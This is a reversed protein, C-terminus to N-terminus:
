SDVRRQQGHIWRGGSEGLCPEWVRLGPGSTVTGKEMGFLSNIINTIMNGQCICTIRFGCLDLFTEVRVSRIKCILDDHFFVTLEIKRHKAKWQFNCKISLVSADDLNSPYISFKLSCETCDKHM